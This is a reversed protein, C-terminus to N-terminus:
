FDTIFSREKTEVTTGASNINTFDYSGPIISTANWKLASYEPDTLAGYVSGTSDQKFLGVCVSHAQEM